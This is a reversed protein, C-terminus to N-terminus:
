RRRTRRSRGSQPDEQGIQSRGLVILEGRWRKALEQLVAFTIGRAGGTVLVTDNEGVLAGSGAPTAPVLGLGFRRGRHYGVEVRRDPGRIEAVLAEAAEDLVAAPDEAALDVVKVRAEPIERAVTKLLGAMGAFAPYVPRDSRDYAFVVSNFSVAAVLGGAALRPQLRQVAAFLSKVAVAIEASSQGAGGDLFPDVPMLHILGDLDPHDALVRDIVAATQVPDLFDCRYNVKPGEGLTVLRAGARGLRTAVREWLGHRDCTMLLKRGAPRGDAAPASDALATVQPEFRQVAPVASSAPAAADQEVAKATAATDETGASAPRTEGLRLRIYAAIKEITNLEALRLDEPVSLTFHRSIRGFTEVQKVTDIGLDAELDLAPDLMDTTYGTQEAIIRQVEAIVDGGAAPAQEAAAPAPTEKSEGLRSRIYVAIKDITNLEALRLDEPVSLTFHRSIRGFTEVQKVTDIGLDAELDLAPDLMDTPYGTQEAIIRQIKAVVDGAPAELVEPAAPAAAVPSPVLVPAAEAAAPVPKSPRPALPRSAPNAAGEVVLTHNSVVPVPDDLGSVRRLWEQYVPNGEAAREEIRRLMLFAFHSGFGASFHLGYQFDGTEGASFKLDAFEDPVRRLNAIPPVRRQQLAKVLVADEIAAGLTHGTFGKTNTITVQRYHEPFTRRLAEVEAEASGGRAPTFTEHSM